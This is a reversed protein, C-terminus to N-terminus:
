EEYEESSRPASPAQEDLSQRYQVCGRLFQPWAPIVPLPDTQEPLLGWLRPHHWCLQQGSSDRHERIGARLRRVEAILQERSMGDVDHDLSQNM